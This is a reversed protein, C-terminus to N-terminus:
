PPVDAEVFVPCLRSLNSWLLPSCASQRPRPEVAESASTERPPTATEDNDPRQRSSRGKVARLSTWGLGRRACPPRSLPEMRVFPARIRLVGRQAMTELPAALPGTRDRSRGSVSGACVRTGRDLERTRSGVRIGVRIMPGGQIGSAKPDLDSDRCGLRPGRRAERFLGEVDRAEFRATEPRLPM